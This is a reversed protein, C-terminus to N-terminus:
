AEAIPLSSLPDSHGPISQHLLDDLLGPAGEQERNYDSMSDFLKKLWLSAAAWPVLGSTRRAWNWTAPHLIVGVTVTMGLTLSLVLPFLEYPLSRLRWRSALLLGVFSFLSLGLLGFLNIVFVSSISQHVKSTVSSLHQAKVVDAGLNSPLFMGFFSSVWHIYAVQLFPLRVQQSELLFKWNYARIGIDLFVIGLALLFFSPQGQAAVQYIRNADGKHILYGLLGLSFLLKLWTLSQKQM